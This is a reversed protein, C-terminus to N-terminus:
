EQSGVFAWFAKERPLPSQDALILGWDPCLTSSDVFGILVGLYFLCCYVFVELNCVM